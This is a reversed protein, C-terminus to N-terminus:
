ISLVRFSSEASKEYLSIFTTDYVIEIRLVYSYNKFDVVAIGLRELSDGVYRLLNSCSDILNGRKRCVGVLRLPLSARSLVLNVACRAIDEYSTRCVSDIPIVWYGRVNRSVLYRVVRLVDVGSRDIYVVSFGKGSFDKCVADIGYSYLINLVDECVYREKHIGCTIFIRPEANEVGIM